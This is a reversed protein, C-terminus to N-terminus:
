KIRAFSYVWVWPNEGGKGRHIEAIYALFEARSKFGEAIADPESIQDRREVRVSKVLLTIRSAWRPMLMSSRWLMEDIEEDARYVVRLSNGYDRRNLYLEGECVEEEADAPIPMGKYAEYECGKPRYVGFTEKVWLITGPSHPCKISDAGRVCGWRNLYGEYFRAPPISWASDPQPNIIRRTQWKAPLSSDITEAPWVNPKTNLLACIMPAKFLIGHAKPEALARTTDPDPSVPTM